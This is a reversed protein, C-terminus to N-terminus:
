LAEFIAFLTFIAFTGQDFHGYFKLFFNKEGFTDGTVAVVDVVDMNTDVTPMVAAGADSSTDSGPSRCGISSGGTSSTGIGSSCEGGLEDCSFWIDVM